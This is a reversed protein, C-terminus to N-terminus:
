SRLNEHAMMLISLLEPLRVVIATVFKAHRQLASCSPNVNETNWRRSCLGPHRNKLLATAHFAPLRRQRVPDLFRCLGMLM